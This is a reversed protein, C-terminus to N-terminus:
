ESTPLNLRRLLTTYRPDDRLGDFLSNRKIFAVSRVRRDYAGDLAAFAADREGRCAHVEALVFPMPSALSNLTKSLADRAADSARVNGLAHNACTLIIGRSTADHIKAATELAEDPHGGSIQTVAIARLAVDANSGEIELSRSFEALAEVYRGQRAETYGLNRHADAALPGTALVSTWAAEAHRWDGALTALVGQEYEIEARPAGLQQALNIERRAAAFDWDRDEHIRALRLHIIGSKPFRAALSAALQRLREEAAPSTDFDLEDKVIANSLLEEAARQFNPDVDLAKRQYTEAEALGAEDRRVRLQSGRLYLELAEPSTTGPRDGADGTWSQTVSIHLIRAVNSAIERQVALADSITRDYTQSWVHTGDAARILQVTIRVRDAARRVSGETVYAAGLKAAIGRIDDAQDRLKFSSTRSIVRLGPIRALEDLIEEALGDGFYQQDHAESLDAFPLVAISQDVTAARAPQTVPNGHHLALVVGLAAIVLGALVVVWTRARVEPRTAVPNPSAAPAPRASGIPTEVGLLAAIRSVFGPPTDGAPLRTWQVDHFRPPVRASGSPTDDIAVPVLFAVDGAMDETRDVALKWERRFYGEGRAETNGSIVPMFLRCERIRQRITRDWADGGRLESKDFWVEIGAAKLALAIRSAAEADESAYSVFVAGAPAKVIM